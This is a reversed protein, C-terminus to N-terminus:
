RRPAPLRTPGPILRAAPKYEVLEEELRQDGRTIIWRAYSRIEPVYWYQDSETTSAERVIKLGQFRGAPVDVAEQAVVMFTANTERKGSRDEYTGRYTWRRGVQLPWEFWPVPRDTRAEVRHDTADAAFAWGLELTWYNLLDTDPMKLVYYRQGSVERLALVDVTRTDKHAGNIRYV